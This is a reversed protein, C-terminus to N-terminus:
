NGRLIDEWAECFNETEQLCIKNNLNCLYPSDPIKLINPCRFDFGVQNACALECPNVKYNVRKIAESLSNNEM